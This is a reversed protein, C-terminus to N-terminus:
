KKPKAAIQAARRAMFGNVVSKSTTGGTLHRNKRNTSPCPAELEKREEIWENIDGDTFRYRPRKTGRGVNVYRLEGDRVFAFLQDLTIRLRRAAEAPLLLANDTV